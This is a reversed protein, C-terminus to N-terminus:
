LSSDAYRRWHIDVASSLLWQSADFDINNPTADIPVGYKSAYNSWEQEYEPLCGSLVLQRLRLVECLSVTRLDGRLFADASHSELLAIKDAVTLAGSLIFDISDAPIKETCRFVVTPGCDDVIVEFYKSFFQMTWQIYPHWVGRYDQHVILSHGPILHKFFLAISRLCLSETKCLDLFLIEIDDGRWYQQHFDGPCVEILSEFPKIQSIYIDMFSGGQPVCSGFMEYISRYIYPESAIFNDYSVIPKHRPYVSPNGQIGEAFCISSAGCFAGADILAGEGRWYNRAVYWLFKREVPLLMGPAHLSKALLEEGARLWAKDQFNLEFWFFM